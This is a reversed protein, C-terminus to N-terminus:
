TAKRKDEQSVMAAHHEEESHGTYPRQIKIKLFPLM